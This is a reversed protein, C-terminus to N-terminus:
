REGKPERETCMQCYASKFAPIVASWDACPLLSAHGFRDCFCRRVSPRLCLTIRSADGKNREQVQLHQCWTRREQAIVRQCRIADLMVPVRDPPLDYLDCSFRAMDSAAADSLSEFVIDPDSEARDLDRERAARGGGDSLSREAVRAIDPFRLASARRAVEQGVERVKTSNGRMDELDVEVLKSRLEFEIQGHKSALSQTARVRELLTDPVQPPAGGIMRAAMRLNTLLMSECLDRTFLIQCFLPINGTSGVLNMLEDLRSRWREFRALEAGLVAEPKEKSRTRWLNPDTAFALKDIITLGWDQAEAFLGLVEAYYKIFESADPMTLIRAIASKLSRSRVRIEDESTAESRLLWSSFLDYQAAMQPTAGGYWNATRERFTRNSISGLSLDVANVLFELFSRDEEELESSSALAERLSPDARLHNGRSYEAFGRVLSLKPNSAYQADSLTSCLALVQNGFGRTIAALGSHLLVESTAAPSSPELTTAEVQIHAGPSLSAAIDHLGRLSRAGDIIKERIQHIAQADLRQRFRITVEKQRKWNPTSARIRSSEDRAWTFFLEGGEPRYLMYLPASGNLLYNLNATTVSVSYSDDSNPSLDSRAKLQVQSRFNTGRGDVLVELSLDVGLDEIREDRVILEDPPLIAALAKLSRRQLEATGDAHPLPGLDDHTTVFCLIAPPGM